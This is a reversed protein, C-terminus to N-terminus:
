RRRRTGVLGGLGLLAFTGPTPVATGNITVNDLRNNGTDSSAGDFTFVVSADVVGNLASIDYSTLEWTSTAGGLVGLVGLSSTGDFM